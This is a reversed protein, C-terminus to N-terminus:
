EAAFRDEPTRVRDRREHLSGPRVQTQRDVRREINLEFRDIVIRELRYRPSSVSERCHRLRIRVIARVNTQPVCIHTRRVNLLPVERDFLQQREVREERDAVDALFSRVQYHWHGVELADVLASARSCAIAAGIERAVRVQTDNGLNGPGLGIPVM